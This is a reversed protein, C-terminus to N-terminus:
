EIECIHINIKFLVIKLRPICKSFEFNYKKNTVIYITIDSILANNTDINLMKHQNRNKLQLM